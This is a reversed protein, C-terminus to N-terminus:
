KRYPAIEIVLDVADSNMILGCALRSNQKLDKAVSLCDKEDDEAPLLKSFKDPQVYVHCDGCAFGGNCSHHISEIGKELVIDLLSNEEEPDFEIETKNGKTDILTFKSIFRNITSSTITKELTKQTLSKSFAFSFM